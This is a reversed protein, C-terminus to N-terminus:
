LVNGKRKGHAWADVVKSWVWPFYLSGTILYKTQLMLNGYQRSNLCWDATRELGSLYFLAKSWKVYWLINVEVHMLPITSSLVVIVRLYPKKQGTWKHHRLHNIWSEYSIKMKYKFVLSSLPAIGGLRKYYWFSIFLLVIKYIWIFSFIFVSCYFTHYLLCKLPFYRGQCEQPPASQCFHPGLM